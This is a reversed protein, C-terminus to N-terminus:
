KLGEYSEWGPAATRIQPISLSDFNFYCGLITRLKLRNHRIPIARLLVDPARANDQQGGIATARSLNHATATGAFGGDPTPLLPEHGFAHRAEQAVLGM